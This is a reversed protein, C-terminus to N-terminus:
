RKAQVMQALQGLKLSLAKLPDGDNLYLPQPTRGALLADTFQTIAEMSSGSANTGSFSDSLLNLRDVLDHLQDKARLKIPEPRKGALIEDVFRRISVLPGYIQHTYHVSLYLTSFIFLAFLALGIGVPLMFKSAAVMEQQQDLKFYESIAGFVDWLYYGFVLIMLTSFLFNVVIFTLGFRLQKYPEILLQTRRNNPFM